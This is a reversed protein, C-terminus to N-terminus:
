QWHGFGREVDDDQEEHAEVFRSLDCGEFRLGSGPSM